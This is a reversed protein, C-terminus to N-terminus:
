VITCRICQVKNTPIILKKNTEKDVKYIHSRSQIENVQEETLERTNIRKGNYYLNYGVMNYIFNDIQQQAIEMRVTQAQM